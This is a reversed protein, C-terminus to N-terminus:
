GTWSALGASAAAPTSPASYLRYLASGIDTGYGWDGPAGFAQHVTKGELLRALARVLEAAERMQRAAEDISEEDPIDRLEDRSKLLENAMKNLVKVLESNDSM